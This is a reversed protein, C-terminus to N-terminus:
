IPPQHQQLGDYMNNTELHQQNNTHANNTEVSSVQQQNGQMSNMNNTELHQQSNTHVNNTEVSSVQQQNGQMSNMNNTRTMSYQQQGDNNSRRQHQLGDDNPRRQQQGDNPGRQQQSGNPGRHQQGDNKRRQQQGNYLNNTGAWGRQQQLQDNSTPRRQQHQGYPNEMEVSRQEDSQHNGADEEDTASWDRSDRIKPVIEMVERMKNKMNRIVLKISDKKVHKDDYMHQQEITDQMILHMSEPINTVLVSNMDATQKKLKNKRPPLQSIYVQSQNNREKIIEAGKIINQAVLDGKTRDVNNTGTSIIIHKASSFDYFKAHDILQETTYTEIIEVKGRGRWFMEPKIWRRNSDM